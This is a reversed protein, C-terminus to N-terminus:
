VSKNRTIWEKNWITRVTGGHQSMERGSPALTMYGLNGRLSWCLTESESLLFCFGDLQHAHKFYNLEYKNIHIMKWNPQDSYVISLSSLCSLFAGGGGETTFVVTCYCCSVVERQLSNHTNILCVNCWCTLRLAIQIFSNMHGQIFM